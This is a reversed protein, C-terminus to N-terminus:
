ITDGETLQMNTGEQEIPEETRGISPSDESNISDMIAQIQRDMNEKDDIFQPDEPDGENNIQPIEKPNNLLGLINDADTLGFKSFLYRVALPM